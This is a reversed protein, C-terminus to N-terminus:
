TLLLRRHGARHDHGEDILAEAVRRVQDVQIVTAGQRDVRGAVRGAVELEGSLPPDRDAVGGFGVQVSVEYGSTM